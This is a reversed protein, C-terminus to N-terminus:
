GAAISLLSWFITILFFTLVPYLIINRAKKKAIKKQEPDSIKNADGMKVLGVILAIVFWITIIEFLSPILNQLDHLM